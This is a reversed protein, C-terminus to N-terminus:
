PTPIHGSATASPVRRHRSSFRAVWVVFAGMLATSVGAGVVGAITGDQAFAPDHFAFSAVSATYVVTLTWAFSCPVAWSRRRALGVAAVLGLVGYALVGMPVTRQLATDGEGIDRLGENLGAAATVVLLALAVFRAFKRM